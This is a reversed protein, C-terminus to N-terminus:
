AVEVATLGARTPGSRLDALQAIAREMDGAGRRWRWSLTTPNSTSVVCSSKRQTRGSSLVFLLTPAGADLERLRQPPSLEM